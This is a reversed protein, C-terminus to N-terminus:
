PEYTIQEKSNISVKTTPTVEEKRSKRQGRKTNIVRLWQFKCNTHREEEKKEIEERRKVGTAVLHEKLEIYVTRRDINTTQQVRNREKLQRKAM